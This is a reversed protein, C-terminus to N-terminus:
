SLDAIKRDLHALAAELSKRHNPHTATNLDNAIRTRSLQLQQIDQERIQQEASKPERGSSTKTGEKSEVQAEVDKSEWGRAMVMNQCLGHWRPPTQPSFNRGFSFILGRASIAHSWATAARKQPLVPLPPHIVGRLTSEAVRALHEAFIGRYHLDTTHEAWRIRVIWDGGSESAIASVIQATPIILLPHQQADLAWIRDACVFLQVASPPANELQCDGGNVVVLAGLRTATDALTTDPKAGPMLIAALFLVLGAIAATWSNWLSLPLIVLSAGAVALLVRFALWSRRDRRLNLLKPLLLVLAFLAGTGFNRLRAATSEQPPVIPTSTTSM